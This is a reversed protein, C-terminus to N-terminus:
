LICIRMFGFQLATSEAISFHAENWRELQHGKGATRGSGLILEHGSVDLRILWNWRKKQPTVM